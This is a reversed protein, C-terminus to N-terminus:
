PSISTYLDDALEFNKEANSGTTKFGIAGNETISINNM